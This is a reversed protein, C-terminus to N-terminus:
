TPYIHLNYHIAGASNLLSSHFNIALTKIHDEIQQIQFDKYLNLNRVLWPANVIIRLVKNQVTQIIKKTYPHVNAGCRALM